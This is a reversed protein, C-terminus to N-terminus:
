KPESTAGGEDIYFSGGYRTVLLYQRWRSKEFDKGREIRDTRSKPPEQGAASSERLAERLVRGDMRAGPEIGLLHLITPAVDINGSPTESRAGERIDPGAAVLTNHMEFRSLSAHNGSGRARRGDSYLMGPVGFQSTEASWRMSFVVDPADPSDLAGEALTFTGDFTERAFIASAYETTQLHEVLKQTLTRDHGIVYLFISGGNGVVMVQGPKPEENFERAADFGAQRLLAAVDHSNGVTSFGHDSVVFIDTQDLLERSKIVEVIRGLNRDASRIAALAEPSGPGHQHQTYDPESLWLTTFVPVEERWLQDLVATTTWADQVENPYTLTGSLVGVADQIVKMADTPVSLAITESGGIGARNQTGTFLDTSPPVTEGHRGGPRDFLLAVSKTSAVVTRQGTAQVQAAITPLALYKGKTLADGKAIYDPGQTDFSRRAEIAPRFERNGVIGSTRPLAGTAIATGNAETSSLYVAHHNEFFVGRQALAWLNPTTDPRVFDPRMGDLVVLVVRRPPTKPAAVSVVLGGFAVAALCLLM